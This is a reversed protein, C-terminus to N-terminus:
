RERVCVDLVDSAYGGASGLVFAQFYLHAPQSWGAARLDLPLALSGTGTALPLVVDLSAGLACGTGFSPIPWPLIPLGLLERGSLGVVLFGTRGPELSGLQLSLPGLLSPDYAPTGQLAISPALAGSPACALRLRTAGASEGQAVLAVEAASLARGYFRFDDMKFFRTASSSEDAHAGVYFQRGEATAVSSV